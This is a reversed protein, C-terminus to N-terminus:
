GAKLNHDSIGGEAYIFIEYPNQINVVRRFWPIVKIDLRLM